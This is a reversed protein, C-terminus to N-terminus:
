WPLPGGTMQGTGAQKREVLELTIEGSGRQRLLHEEDARASTAAQFGRLEGLGVADGLDVAEIAPRRTPRRFPEGDYLRRWRLRGLGRDVGGLRAGLGGIAFAVGLEVRHNAGVDLREPLLAPQREVQEGTQA